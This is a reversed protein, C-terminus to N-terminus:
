TEFCWRARCPYLDNNTNALFLLSTLCSPVWYCNRNGSTKWCFWAYSSCVPPHTQRSHQAKEQWPTMANLPKPGFGELVLNACLWLVCAPQTVLCLLISRVWCLAGSESSGLLPPRAPWILSLLSLILDKFFICQLSHSGWQKQYLPKNIQGGDEFLVFDEATLILTPIKDSCHLQGKSEAPVVQLRRGALRWIQSQYSPLPRRKCVCIVTSM